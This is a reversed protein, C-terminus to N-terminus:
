FRSVGGGECHLFKGKRALRDVDVVLSIIGM